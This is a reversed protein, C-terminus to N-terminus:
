RSRNRVIERRWAALPQAPFGALRSGDPWDRTVGSRAAVVCGNGLRVHDAFGAQGGVLCDEGLTVSGSLGVQAAVRTRAGIRCNHGVQVQADIHCFSDIRTPDLLGAAVNVLAGIRVGQGIEVGAWHPLALHCEPTAVLGFGQSGLVTHSGIRCGNGLTTKRHLVAHPELRCDAGIECDAEIVTGAGLRVRDGIRATAHVLAGRASTGFRELMEEPSLWYDTDASPACPGELLALLATRPQSHLIWATDPGDGPERCLIAAAVSAAAPVRTDFVLSDVTASDQSALIGLFPDPGRLEAGCLSAVESARLNLALPM